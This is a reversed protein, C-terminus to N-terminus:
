VTHLTLLHASSLRMLPDVQSMYFYFCDLNDICLIQNNGVSVSEEKVNEVNPSDLEHPLMEKLAIRLASYLNLAKMFDDDSPRGVEDM